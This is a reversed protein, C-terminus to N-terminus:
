GISTVSNPITISKLAKCSRFAGIGINTINNSIIVNELSKLYAFSLEEFTTAPNGIIVITKLADCKNFIMKGISIVGKPITISTLSSCEVFAGETNYEPFLSLFTLNTAGLIKELSNPLNVNKLSTCRAFARREITKM